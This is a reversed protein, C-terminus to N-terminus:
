ALNNKNIRKLIFFLFLFVFCFLVFFLFVFFSFSPFIHKANNKKYKTFNYNVVIQKTPKLKMDFKITIKNLRKYWTNITPNLQLPQTLSLTHTHISLCISSQLTKTPLERSLMGRFSAHTKCMVPIRLTLIPHLYSHKVLLERTLGERSVSAFCETKGSQGIQYVSETGVSYVWMVWLHQPISRLSFGVWLGQSNSITIGM